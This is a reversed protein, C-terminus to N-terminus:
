RVIRRSRGHQAPRRDRHFPQQAIVEQTKPDVFLQGIDLANRRSRGELSKWYHIAIVTHYAHERLGVEQLLDSPPQDQDIMILEALRHQSGVLHFNDLDDVMVANTSERRM